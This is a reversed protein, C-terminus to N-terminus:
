GSSSLARLRNAQYVLGWVLVALFALVDMPVLSLNPHFACRKHTIAERIPTLLRSITSM